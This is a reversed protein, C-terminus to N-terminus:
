SPGLKCRREEAREQKRQLSQKRNRERQCERCRKYVAVYKHTYTNEPTQPHGKHCVEKRARPM